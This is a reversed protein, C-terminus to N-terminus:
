LWRASAGLRCCSPALVWSCEASEVIADEQDEEVIAFCRFEFSNDAAADSKLDNNHDEPTVLLKFEEAGSNAKVIAGKEIRKVEVAMSGNYRYQTAYATISVRIKAQSAVLASTDAVV